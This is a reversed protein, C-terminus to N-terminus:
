CESMGMRRRSPPPQATNWATTFHMEHLTSASPLYQVAGGCAVELQVGVRGSMVGSQVNLFVTAAQTLSWSRGSFSPQVIGAYVVQSWRDYGSSTTPPSDVPQAVLQLTGQFSGSHPMWQNTASQADLESSRYFLRMAITEIPMSACVGSYTASLDFWMPISLSAAAQLPANSAQGLDLGGPAAAPNVYLELWGLMTLTCANTVSVRAKAWHSSVASLVGTSSVQLVSSYEAPVAFTAIDQVTAGLQGGRLQSDSYVCMLGFGSFTPNVEIPLTTVATVGSFAFINSLSMAGDSITLQTSANVGRLGVAFSAAGAAQGQNIDIAGVSILNNRTISIEAHNLNANGSHSFTVDDAELLYTAVFQVRQRTPPSACGLTYLM